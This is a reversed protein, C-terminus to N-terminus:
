LPLWLPGPRGHWLYAITPGTATGENSDAVSSSTALVRVLSAITTIERQLRGLARTSTVDMYASAAEETASNLARVQIAILLAALAAIFVMVASTISTRFTLMWRGSPRMPAKLEIEETAM